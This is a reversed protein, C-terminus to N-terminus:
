QIIDGNRRIYRDLQAETSLKSNSKFLRFFNKM